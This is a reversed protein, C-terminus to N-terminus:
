SMEGAYNPHEKLKEEYHEIAKQISVHNDKAYHIIENEITAIAVESLVLDPDKPSLEELINSIAYNINDAVDSAVSAQLAKMNAKTRKKLHPTQQVTVQEIAKVALAKLASTLMLCADPWTIGESLQLSMKGEKNEIAILM